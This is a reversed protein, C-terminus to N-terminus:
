FRLGVGASLRLQQTTFATVALGNRLAPDNFHLILDSLDVRGRVRSGLPVSVGGGLTIALETQGAALTCTLPPPYILICALPGPSPAFQLFGAEATGFLRLGEAQIRITGARVRHYQAPIL